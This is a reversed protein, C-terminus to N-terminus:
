AASPCLGHPHGPRGPGLQSRWPLNWVRAPGPDPPLDSHHHQAMRLAPHLHYGQGYVNDLFVEALHQQVDKPPLAEVGERLLKDDDDDRQAEGSSPSGDPLGSKSPAKAWAGLEQDFYEYLHRKRSALLKPSHGTGSVPPKVVAHVVPPFAQHDAKPVIKIIREEMRKLRKDLIAMYDTRPAAKRTTVKYVCPVRSHLCHKCAPKEGSCRIKRRCAICALPLRKCDKGAKTKLESWPPVVGNGDDRAKAGRDAAHGGARATLGSDDAAPDEFCSAPPPDRHLTSEDSTEPSSRRDESGDRPAAIAASTM